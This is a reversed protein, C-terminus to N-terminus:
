SRRGPGPVRSLFAKEYGAAKWNRWNRRRSPDLWSWLVLIPVVVAALAVLVVVSVVAGFVMWAVALLALVIMAKFLFHFM